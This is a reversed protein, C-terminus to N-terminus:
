EGVDRPFWPFFASTRRAYAAYAPKTQRLSKELLTVGSVRMLFVSMVLPGTISWLGAGTAAAVFYIGWWVMFDGFYNPHRTFNWLGRDCVKGQNEPRSKFRALQWDGVVEFLLGVFWVILGVVDFVNFPSRAGYFNGSQLPLSVVWMVIGQLLFVTFLSVIPFRPAHRERMARYRYDEPKGHNRWALYSTLRLGWLSAMVVLLWGRPSPQTWNRSVWVIVVFGAGWALDVISVDRLPLSILWVCFMVFAIVAANVLLLELM